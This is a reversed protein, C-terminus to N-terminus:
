RTRGLVLGDTFALGFNGEGAESLRWVHHIIDGDDGFILCNDVNCHYDKVVTVM